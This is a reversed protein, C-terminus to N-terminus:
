APRRLHRRVCAVAAEAVARHRDLEARGREGAARAAAPEDLLRRWVAALAAADAVRTGAGCGELLAAADRVNDLHPGFQVPVAAAAPELLNHGGLPALTGGVFAARAGAFFGALEGVSDLLFVREDAEVRAAGATRRSWPLRAEDLLRAVEAFREPRRPALLLLVDPHAAWVSSCAALVAAEEGPQTSAAVIVPRQGLDVPRPAEAPAARRALKLSGLVSIRQPPVGLAAFRRADAETQAAVEAISELAAAFFSRFRRYRESAAPTLRASVMVVPAGRAAASRILGPWIETELIVVAAPALRAVARGVIAPLDLPLLTAPVGLRERATERGSVTTTTVFPPHGPETRRLGEVLPAASLVEGVSAAHLWLPARGALRAVEPDLRGLRQPLGRFLSAM